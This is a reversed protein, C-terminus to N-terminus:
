FIENGDNALHRANAEEFTLTQLGYITRPDGQTVVKIIDTAVQEAKRAAEEKYFEILEEPTADWMVWGEINPDFVCLLGNPQQIIQARM